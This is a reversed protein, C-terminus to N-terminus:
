YTFYRLLPKASNLLKIRTRLKRETDSHNKPTYECLQVARYPSFNPWIVLLDAAHRRAEKEDACFTTMGDNSVVYWGIPKNQGTM